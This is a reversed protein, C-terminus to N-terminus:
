DRQYENTTYVYFTCIEINQTQLIDTTKIFYM